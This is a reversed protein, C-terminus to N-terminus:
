ARGGFSCLFTKPNTKIRKRIDVETFYLINAVMYLCSVDTGLLVDMFMFRLSLRMRPTANSQLGSVSTETLASLM